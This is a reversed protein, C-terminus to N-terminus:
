PASKSASAPPRILRKEQRSRENPHQMTGFKFLRSLFGLRHFQCKAAPETGWVFVEETRNPCRRTALQGTTPDIEVTIVGAPPEFEGPARYNPIEHARKMFETWIPLASRAGEIKLDRNNDFGVWVVCLLRRTYGAFWGDDDTGTKGGAPEVFGLDRVRRGTGRNIVDELLSTLIFATTEDLIPQAEVRRRYKTRGDSERVERIFYPEVRIGRNAFISYGAALSLPTVEYAGLALSPTGEITESLKALRALGAVTEFGLRQALKVTANNLSRRLAERLTVYGGFEDRFNTPEYVEGDWAFETPEDNLMSAATLRDRKGPGYDLGTAVAAAYVFPKLASGPQRRALARNLQSRRYNRGGVLARVAGTAPDLAILAAEPRPPTLGQFRPQRQLTDEVEAMGQRVAEVAARQLRLDLTTHVHYGNSALEDENFRDHLRRSVLDVFYPAIEEDVDRRNLQLPAQTASEYAMQTVDGHQLMKRLVVDRRRKAREPHRYPNLYSPRQILGALLAAEAIDINCLKKGFYTNAAEGMGRINFSGNRGMWVHNCYYVLIQEKSLRSELEWALLLERAKRSYSREAKLFFTRALQQTISSTGRPKEWRRVGELIAALTRKFDIGGHDFFRHDEITLIARRLNDPIDAYRILRRKARSRDHLNTVFEPANAPGAYIGASPHFVRSSVMTDVANDYATLVYFVSGALLFVLAVGSAAVVERGPAARRIRRVLRQMAISLYRQYTKADNGVHRPYKEM